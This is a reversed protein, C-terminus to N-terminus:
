CNLPTGPRYAFLTVCWFSMAMSKGAVLLNPAGEVTLARFPIFYPLVPAGSVIYSPLPCAWKAMKHIDAYFYQGIAVSDPWRVATHKDNPDPTSLNSEFLRFGDLGGASRRTDRLYPMRSLGTSTGAVSANLSLYPSISSSANAKFYHYFGLARQEAQSLATTNIGGRWKFPGSLQESLEASGLPYFLYGTDYDNGSNIVSTEGPAGKNLDAGSAAFVRRYTWDREWDMGQQNFPTGEANGAPWPDPSPALSSSYTVYFPITTGQGCNSLYERSDEGPAEVGQAVPLGATMLVDGFETAEIVVGGPNVNFTIAEKGFAASPSPDYWDSLQASTYQEWGSTGNVPTRRVGTVSTVAGTALDRTANAVATNLFVRLNLFQALLPFIFEDLALQPLFCKLSVWCSGLNVGGPMQRGFLFDAFSQPLNAPVGNNPGFDVAPVASATLQGGPWDTPDLFCVVSARSVNAATVAAALSALSGGAVIIDCYEISSASPHGWVALVLLFVAVLRVM